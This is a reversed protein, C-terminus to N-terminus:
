IKNQLYDTVYRILELEDLSPKVAEISTNSLVLSILLTRARRLSFKETM